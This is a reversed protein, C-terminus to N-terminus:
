TAQTQLNLINAWCPPALSCHLGPFPFVTLHNASKYLVNAPSEPQISVMAQCTKSLMPASWLKGTRYTVKLLAEFPREEEEEVCPPLKTNVVLCRM